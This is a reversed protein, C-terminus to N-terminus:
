QRSTLFNKEWKGWKQTKQPVQTMNEAVNNQFIIWTKDTSGSIHGWTCGGVM